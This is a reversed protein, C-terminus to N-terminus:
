GWPDRPSHWPKKYPSERTSSESKREGFGQKERRVSGRNAKDGPEKDLIVLGSQELEDEFGEGEDDDVEIELTRSNRVVSSVPWKGGSLLKVLSENDKSRLVFLM